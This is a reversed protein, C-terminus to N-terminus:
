STCVPSVPFGRAHFYQRLQTILADLTSGSEPLQRKLTHNLWKGALFRAIATDLQNPLSPTQPPNELEGCLADYLVSLVFLANLYPCYYPSSAGLRHEIRAGKQWQYDTVLAKDEADYAYPVAGLAQNHKGHTRYLAVSGQHGGSLVTPSSLESDLAFDTRLTLRLFADPEPLFLAAVEGSLALLGHQVQEALDEYAFLNEGEADSCSVNIQVSNPVHVPHVNPAFFQFGPQYRHKEGHWFVPMLKSEGYPAFLATHHAMFWALHDAETVPTQGCFHSAYEWQCAWFEPKLEALIGKTKLEHNLHTYSIPAKSKTLVGECEFHLHPTVNLAAFKKHLAVLCSRASHSVAKQARVWEM